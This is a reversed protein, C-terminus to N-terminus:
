RMALDLGNTKTHPGIGDVSPFYDSLDETFLKVKWGKPCLFPFSLNALGSSMTVSPADARAHLWKCAASWPFPLAPIKDGRELMQKASAVSFGPRLAVFTLILSHGVSLRCKLVSVSAPVEGESQVLNSMWDVM